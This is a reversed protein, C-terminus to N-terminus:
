RCRGELWTAGMLPTLWNVIYTGSNGAVFARGLVTVTILSAGRWDEDGLAVTTMAAGLVAGDRPTEASAAALSNRPELV